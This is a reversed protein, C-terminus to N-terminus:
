DVGVGRLYLTEKFMGRYMSYHLKPRQNGIVQYCSNAICVEVFHRECRHAHIKNLFLISRTLRPESLTWMLLIELQNTYGYLGTLHIHRGNQLM